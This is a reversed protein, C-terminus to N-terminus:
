IIVEFILTANGPIKPPSGTPGYAYDPRCELSAIEGKIFILYLFDFINFFVKVCQLSM